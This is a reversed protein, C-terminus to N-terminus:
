RPVSAGTFGTRRVADAVFGSRTIDTVFADLYALAATNALPVALAQEIGTINEPLLRLTSDASATLTLGSRLGAVASLTGARLAAIAADGTLGVIAAQKLTRALFLGYASRPGAAITVGASDVDAAHRFVSDARVLYAAEVIVYPATFAVSAREPDRGVFAVDWSKGAADVVTGADDYGVFEIRTGLRRALEHAVDVAVGAPGASGDGRRALVVNGYNLGVRMVGSPALQRRVADSQALGTSAALVFAIAVIVARMSASELAAGPPSTFQVGV